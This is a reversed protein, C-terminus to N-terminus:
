SRRGEPKKKAILFPFFRNIIEIIFIEAILVFCVTMVNFATGYETSIKKNYHMAFVEAAYLVFLDLHTLMIIISNRGLYRLPFLIKRNKIIEMSKSLLIVSLSGLIATIFYVYPNGFSCARLDIILNIKSLFVVLVLLLIGSFLDIAAVTKGSIGPLLKKIRGALETSFYGFAIFFMCILARLVTLSAMYFAKDSYILYRQQLITNACLAAAFLIIVPILSFLRLKKALFVFLMESLFLAPLFWLVSIGNLTLTGALNIGAKQWMVPRDKILYYFIYVILYIISFWLYPLMIGKARKRVFTTLDKDAEGNVSLLMGSIVFFLPMHFSIVFAHLEAPMYEIHGIIVLIIGIGRALDFYDIRKREM